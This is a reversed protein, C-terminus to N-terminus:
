ESSPLHESSPLRSYDLFLLSSVGSLRSLAVQQRNIVEADVFDCNEQKINCFQHYILAEHYPRM